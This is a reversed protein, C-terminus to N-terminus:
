APPDLGPVEIRGVLPAGIMDQAPNQPELRGSHCCNFSTSSLKSPREVNELRRRDLHFFRQRHGEGRQCGRHRGSRDRRADMVKKSRKQIRRSWRRWPKGSAASLDM